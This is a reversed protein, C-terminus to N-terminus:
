FFSVKAVDTFNADLIVAFGHRRVALGQNALSDLPVRRSRLGIWVVLDAFM